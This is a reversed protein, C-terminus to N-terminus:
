LRKSTCQGVLARLQSSITTDVSAAGQGSTQVGVVDVVRDWLQDAVLAMSSRHAAGAYSVM